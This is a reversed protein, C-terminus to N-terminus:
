CDPAAPDAPRRLDDARRPEGRRPRDAAARDEGGRGRVRPLRARRQDRARARLIVNAADDADELSPYRKGGWEVCRIQAPRRTASRTRSCSTTSAPSRSTSATARRHGARARLPGLSIFQDYLNSYDREVVAFHPMTKGPVPECEGKRWDHVEAPRDRRAHRASRRADRRRAGARPLAQPALESVKQALAKFIDWDSKSEWCPPVAASLPHIFSHMDTTNLDDKEYWTAAPLVIDSYLASTDMRFNLDVVLDMKGRPAPEHWTVTKVTDKRRRRRRDRQHAHRPLPQLFFEHGKASAMLANGRWIFWVRPWNEPPTRTRSRSAQLKEGQAASWTRAIEEDTERGRGRGRRGVELPSRDFQPFFPLWGIRVAQVQLDITHGKRGANADQRSPTTTPSSASTAGSTPTSTTCPRADEAPAAAPVLRPRLRDDVVVGDAGAEGPRRLPEARRRQRRRLRLADARHHRRPVDPQQPVLPQRRRRHHDHVQGETKEATAAWERAFQLVRTAASAPTSSRGPRRTRRRRRRRLEAPYDGPLGRGVGFQAMLLDYVTAVPVRATPPRSTARGARRPTLSTGSAFDDFRSRRRGDDSGSSSRSRRTSRRRRRRRGETLLNWKGKSRAGASASAAGAAHAAAGSAEDWVLFKWDGNEVDAYRPSGTPACCSARRTPRRRQEDLEVLFPSDTYRKLYDLFYPVQREDHFEKLIVHNVAM